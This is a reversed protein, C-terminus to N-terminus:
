AGADRLTALLFALRVLREAIPRADTHALTQVVVVRRDRVSVLPRLKFERSEFEREELPALPLGAERCIAEALSRSESLAFVLPRLAEAAM